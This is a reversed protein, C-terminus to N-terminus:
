GHGGSHVWTHQEGHGVRTEQEGHSIVHSAASPITEPVGHGSQATSEAGCITVSSEHAGVDGGTSDCTGAGLSGASDGPGVLAGGM